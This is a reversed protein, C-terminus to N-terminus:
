TPRRALPKGFSASARARKRAASVRKKGERRVDGWDKRTMPTAPGSDLGEILQGELKAQAERKQEERLLQRVYESATGFGRREAQKEVWGKLAESLSVHMTARM